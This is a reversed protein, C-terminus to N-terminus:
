RSVDEDPLQEDACDDCFDDFQRDVMEAYDEVEVANGCRLCRFAVLVPYDDPEPEFDPGNPYVHQWFEADTM